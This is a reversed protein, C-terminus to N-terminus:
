EGFKEGLKKIKNKKADNNDHTELFVGEVIEKPMRMETGSKHKKETNLIYRTRGSEIPLDAKTINGRDFLLEVFEVYNEVGSKGEAFEISDPTRLIGIQKEVTIWFSDDDKVPIKETKEQLKTILRDITEKSETQADQSVVEGAVDTIVKTIQEAINEKEDQLINEARRIDFIQQALEKSHGTQLSEKSLLSIYEIRSSFDELELTAVTRIEVGHEVNERRYIEYIEGNTLLGWDVDKQRLYSHLQTRHSDTLSTDNGKAEIFLVPSSSNAFLAYDVYNRTTGVTLQYELEADFAIDWGLLEIFDRLIKSKTNDENMQPYQEIISHSRSVFDSLNAPSIYEESSM